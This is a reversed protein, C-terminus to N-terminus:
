LAHMSGNGRACLCKTLDHGQFDQMLAEKVLSPAPMASTQDTYMGDHGICRMGMLVPLLEPSYGFVDELYEKGSAATQQYIMTMAVM